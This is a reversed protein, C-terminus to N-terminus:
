SLAKLDHPTNLNSFAEADRSEVVMNDQEFVRNM